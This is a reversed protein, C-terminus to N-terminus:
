AGPRDPIVLALVVVASGLAAMTLVDLWRGRIGLMGAREDNLMARLVSGGLMGVGVVLLGSRWQDLVVMAVGATTTALVGLYVVGGFTRPRRPAISHEPDPLPRRYRETM